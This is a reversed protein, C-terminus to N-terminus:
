KQYVQETNTNGYKGNVLDENQSCTKESWSFLLKGWHGKKVFDESYLCELLAEEGLATLTGHQDKSEACLAGGM